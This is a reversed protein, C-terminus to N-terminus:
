AHRCGAPHARSRTSDARTGRAARVTIRKALSTLQPAAVILGDARYAASNRDITELDYIYNATMGASRKIGAATTDGLWNIRELRAGNGLHFRAVPDLPEGGRKAHLLYSACLPLADAEIRAVEDRRERWGDEDLLKVADAVGGTRPAARDLWPRFGPIPSVTAFTRIQPLQAQLASVVRRILMNGFPVGRLGEHCSSISYFMACDCSDPDAIPSHTDLIAAVDAAIGRTLAVETFALPQHPLAAAVLAYCRRDADLRRHLDRLGRFAHVAEHRVIWSLVTRASATDIRHLDPPVGAFHARLADALRAERGAWAPHPPLRHLM